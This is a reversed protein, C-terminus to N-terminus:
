DWSPAPEDPWCCSRGCGIYCLPEEPDKPMVIQNAQEKHMMELQEAIAVVQEPTIQCGNEQYDDPLVLVDPCEPESCAAIKHVDVQMERGCDCWIQITVQVM